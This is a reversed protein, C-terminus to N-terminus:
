WMISKCFPVTIKIGYQKESDRLDVICFIIQILLIKINVYMYMTLTEATLM